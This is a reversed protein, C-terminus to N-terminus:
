LGLEGQRYARSTTLKPSCAQLAATSSMGRERKTECHGRSSSWRDPMSRHTRCPEWKVRRERAGELVQACLPHDPFVQWHVSTGALLEAETLFRPLGNQGPWLM